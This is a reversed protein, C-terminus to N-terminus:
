SGRCAVAARSETLGNLSPLFNKVVFETNKIPWLINLSNKQTLNPLNHRKPFKGITDLINFKIGYLQEHYDMMISKNYTDIMCLIPITDKSINM